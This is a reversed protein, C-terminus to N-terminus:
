FSQYIVQLAPAKENTSTSLPRGIPLTALLSHPKNDFGEDEAKEGLGLITEPQFWILEGWRERLKKTWSPTM